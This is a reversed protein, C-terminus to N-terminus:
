PHPTLTFTIEADRCNIESPFGVDNYSGRATGTLRGTVNDATGSAITADIFVGLHLEGPWPLGMTRLTGSLLDKARVLDLVVVTSYNQEVAYWLHDGNVTLGSDFTVDSPLRPLQIPVGPYSKCNTASVVHLTLNYRFLGDDPNRTTFSQVISFDSVIDEGTDVAQVRWYYTAGSTLDHTPTFSTQSPTELVLVHDFTTNFGPDRAIWFSYALKAPPGTWSSNAVTFTPRKHPFTDAIPTVPTPPQIVLQPGITFTSVASVISPNDGVTTKVRWYYTTAVNLHDLPVRVQGNVTPPLTKTFVISAFASDTAVEVVTTPPAGTATVGPTVILGFPQSYYSFTANQAPSMPRGAVVTVSPRSPSGCAWATLLCVACALHAERARM